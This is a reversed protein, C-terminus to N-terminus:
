VENLPLQISQIPSLLQSKREYEFNDCLGQLQLHHIKNKFTEQGEQLPVVKAIWGPKIVVLVVLTGDETGHAVILSM